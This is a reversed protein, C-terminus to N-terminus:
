VPSAAKAATLRLLGIEAPAGIRCPFWDGCGNSVVLTTNRRQYIGSWYKFFLPGFGIPGAMIQGGHTHGTLVLDTSDAVDFLHPHHALLIRLDGKQRAPYLNSV